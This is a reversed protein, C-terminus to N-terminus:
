LKELQARLQNFLQRTEKLKAENETDLSAGPKAEIEAHDSLSEWAAFASELSKLASTLQESRMPRKQEKAQAGSYPSEHPSQTPRSPNIESDM